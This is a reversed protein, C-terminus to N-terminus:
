PQPASENRWPRVCGAIADAFSPTRKTPYWPQHNLTPDTCNDTLYVAVRRRAAVAVPPPANPGKANGPSLISPRRPRSSTATPVSSPGAGPTAPPSTAPPRRRRLHRLLRRTGRRRPRARRGPPGPPAPLRPVLARRPVVGPPDRDPRARRRHRDVCDAAVRPPSKPHPPCGPAENHPATGANAPAPRSRDTCPPTAACGPCWPTRPLDAGALCAYAGDACCTCRREPLWDAIEPIM